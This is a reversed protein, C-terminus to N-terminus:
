PLEKIKLGKFEIPAGESELCLYGTKPDCDKGGSVQEGNVWLRVEGNVAKIYYHNWEGVGKSLNKSPFSRSGKPSKPEFPIMKSKGVPFVDGHTTFWDSKKKNAKEYNEAYGHDLIQVEIGAKPLQGPKLGELGDESAWLFIGSNGAHKMHRWTAVMEFNTYKKKSRTVGVPTGKCFITGDKWIWTDPDTNVNQFDSESLASWGEGEGTILKASEQAITLSSFSIFGILSLFMLTKIFKFCIRM